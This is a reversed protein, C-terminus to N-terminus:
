AKNNLKFIDYKNGNGDTLNNSVGRILYSTINDFKYYTNKDSSLFKPPKIETLSTYKNENRQNNLRYTEGVRLVTIDTVPESYCNPTKASEESESCTEGGRM